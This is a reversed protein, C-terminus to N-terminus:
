LLDNLKAKVAAHDLGAFSLGKAAPHNKLISDRCVERDGDKLVEDWKKALYRSKSDDFVKQDTSDSTKYAPDYAGESVRKCINHLLGANSLAKCGGTAVAKAMKHVTKLYLVYQTRMEAENSATSGFSSFDPFNTECGIIVPITGETYSEREVRGLRKYPGNEKFEGIIYGELTYQRYTKASNAKKTKNYNPFKSPTFHENDIKLRLGHQIKNNPVYTTRAQRLNGENTIEPQIDTEKLFNHPPVQIYGEFEPMVIGHPGM